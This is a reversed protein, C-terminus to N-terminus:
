EITEDAYVGWLHSRPIFGKYGGVEIRCWDALCSLLRAQAGAQAFALVSAKDRDRYLERREGEILATRVDSLLSRHVWGLTGDRDRIKRWHEYEAIIEVPLGRRVLQWLIPYSLGPGARVNAKSAGISVFRPLKPADKQRLAETWPAIANPEAEGRIPAMVLIAATIVAVAALVM